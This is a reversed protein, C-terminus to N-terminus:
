EKQQFLVKPQLRLIFLSPIMTAFFLIIISVFSVISVTEKTIKVNVSNIPDYKKETNQNEGGMIMSMGNNTMSKNEEVQQNQIQQNLSYNAIKQGVPAALASALAFAVIAVTFTEILLQSIIKLKSEGLALLVGIEFKRNRLNLIILTALIFLGIILSIIVLSTCFSQVQKLPGVLQKYAEDHADFKFTSNLVNLKKADKIFEDILLPDKLYFTAEQTESQESFQKATEYNVYIENSPLGSEMTALLPHVSKDSKYIGKVKFEVPNGNKDKLKFHDGVELNSKEALRKEIIATPKKDNEDIAKGELLMSKKNKFDESLQLKRVGNISFNTTKNDGGLTSAVQSDDSAKEAPIPKINDKEAGGSLGVQYDKVQPLDKLKNIANESITPIETNMGSQMGSQIQKMLKDRDLTVSVDAGLKQRAKMENQKTADQIIFGIFILSFIAFFTVLTLVTKGKKSKLSLFARSIFTM